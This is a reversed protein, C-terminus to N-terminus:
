LRVITSPVVEDENFQAARRRVGCGYDGLRASTKTDLDVAM